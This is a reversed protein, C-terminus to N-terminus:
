AGYEMQIYHSPCTMSCISCGSCKAYDTFMNFGIPRSMDRSIAEWPCYIRCRDCVFCRGCSMCRHSEDVAEDRMLPLNVERFDNTRESLPLTGEDNRQMIQYYDLRMESVEIPKPLYPLRFERGELYEVIARAAKRGQGIATTAFHPNLMDGGAFIGDNGTSLSASTLVRGNGDLISEIGAPDHTQGVAAVITDAELTFQSGKIAVPRHRGSEDPPGPETRIFKMLLRQGGAGGPAPEAPGANGKGAATIGIPATQFEFRVGEQEAEWVEGVIAPMEQRTRRYVITVESGLRVAVRAADIAANGGGIVLVRAGADKLEGRNVRRLFELSPLVGPLNEGEIGMTMSKYAGVAVYVAEYDRRLAEMTVDAGVRVGYRIVVGLDTLKGVEADIVERPLRYVPIGDRLMGGPMDSAEFVTVPYGRRVLQYACSLGSPGAGVVAVRKGKTEETLLELPLGHEIGHDGLFRELSHIAVPWDRRRRNCADECPHPCIRGIIAPFPNKDTIIRWGEDFSQELGRGFKESLAITTLHGRIDESSPCANKCPPIRRVYVPCRGSDMPPLTREDIPRVHNPKTEPNASM